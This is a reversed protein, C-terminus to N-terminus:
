LDAFSKMVSYRAIGSRHLGYLKFIEDIHLLRLTSHSHPGKFTLHKAATQTIEINFPGRCLNSAKLDDLPGVIDKQTTETESIGFASLAEWRYDLESSEVQDQLQWELVRPLMDATLALVGVSEYLDVLAYSDKSISGFGYMRSGGDNSFLAHRKSAEEDM